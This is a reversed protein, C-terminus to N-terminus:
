WLSLPKMSICGLLFRSWIEGPHTLLNTFPDMLRTPVQTPPPWSISSEQSFLVPPCDRSVLCSRSVSSPACLVSRTAQPGPLSHAGLSPVPSRVSLGWLSAWLAAWCLATRSVNRSGSPSRGKDDRQEWFEGEHVGIEKGM